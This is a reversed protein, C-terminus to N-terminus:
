EIPKHGQLARILNIQGIHYSDHPLMYQLRELSKSPDALAAAIREQSQGFRAVTAQWAADSVQAPEPFNRREIEDKPLAGRGSALRELADERWFIMHTVIQWISHRGPAPKWVAQRATLGEVSKSWAAAWLGETWADNWVKALWDHDM